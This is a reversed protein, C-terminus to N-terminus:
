RGCRRRRMAVVATMACALAAVGPEPVNNSELRYLQNTELFCLDGSVPERLIGLSGAFGSAFLNTAGSCSDTRTM